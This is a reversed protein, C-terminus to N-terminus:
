MGFSQVTNRKQGALISLTVDAEASAVGDFVNASNEPPIEGALFEPLNLTGPSVDEGIDFFTSFEENSNLGLQQQPQHHYQQQQQQEQQSRYHINQFNNQENQEQYAQHQQLQQHRYMTNSAAMMSLPTMLILNDPSQLPAPEQILDPLDESHQQHQPHYQPQQYSQYHHQQQQYAQYNQEQFNQNNDQPYPYQLVQPNYQPQEQQQEYRQYAFGNESIENQPDQIYQEQQIFQPQYQGPDSPSSNGDDTLPQLGRVAAGIEAQTMGHIRLHSSLGDVRTFTKGCSECAYPKEGTHLRFHRRLHEFRKFNQKCGPASCTFIRREGPKSQVDPSTEPSVSTHKSGGIALPSSIVRNRSRSKYNPSGELLSLPATVTLSQQQPSISESRSTRHQRFSPIDLSQRRNLEIQSPVFHGAILQSSGLNIHQLNPSPTHPFNSPTAYQHPQQYSLNAPELFPSNQASAVVSLAQHLMENQLSNSGNEHFQPINPATMGLGSAQSEQRSLNNPTALTSSELVAFTPLCHQKALALTNEASFSPIPTTTTEQGNGERKLDRELADMFLRDHPVSFWYFVKQKKQTRICSSKFLFDLLPSRPEELTADIGPKLNRLDSFVGEEFKKQMVVPRGFASFRFALAKVIDTGTIHYLNNWFVCAITEGSPLKHRKILQGQVFNSPATVLFLKLRELDTSIQIQSTDYAVFGDSELNEDGAEISQEVTVSPLQLQENEENDKDDHHVINEDAPM